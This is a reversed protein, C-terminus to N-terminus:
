ETEFYAVVAAAYGRALALQVERSALLRAEVDNSLFLGEGLVGPMKTARPHSSRRGWGWGSRRAPGLVFLHGRYRGWRFLVSDDKVGRDTAEYDINKM